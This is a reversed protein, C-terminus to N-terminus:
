AATRHVEGHDAMAVLDARVAQNFENTLPYSEGPMYQTMMTARLGRKFDAFAVTGAAGGWGYTGATEGLGVRGGAGFGAGEAFTGKLEVGDPLLNSTGVRVALESMVRTGDIKGYGLLM